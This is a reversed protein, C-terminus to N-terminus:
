TIVLVAHHGVTTIDVELAQRGLRWRMGQADIAQVAKPRAAFVRLPITVKVPGVQPNVSGGSAALGTYLNVLSLVHTAGADRRGFVVQIGPPASVQVALGPGYKRVVYAMLRKLWPDERASIQQGIPASIYIVSGKGVRNITVLPKGTFTKFHIYATEGDTFREKTRHDEPYVLEALPRATTCQVELVESLFLIPYEPAGDRLEESLWGYNVEKFPSVGTFRVGLLDSWAFNDQRKGASDRLSTEHTVILLGGASVFGRLAEGLLPSPAVADGVLLTHYKSPNLRSTDVVDFHIGSDLLANHLGSAEEQVRLGRRGPLPLLSLESVPDYVVAVDPVSELGALWAERERVARFTPELNRFEGPYFSGDPLPNIGASIRGGHATAIAASVQMYSSPILNWASWTGQATGPQLRMFGGYSHVQYPKGMAWMSKATFSISRHPKAETSHLGIRDQIDRPTGDLLDRMGAGNYGIVMAPDISLLLDVADRLMEIRARNGFRNVRMRVAPDDSALPPEEGFAKRYAARCHPCFCAQGPDFSGVGYANPAGLIDFWFGEPRIAEAVQRLEALVQDRWPSRLCMWNYAGFAIKEKGAPDVCRWEPRQRAMWNDLGVNYYAIFPMGARRALERTQTTWDGRCPRGKFPFAADGMPNKTKLEIIEVGAQKCDHIFAQANWKKGADRSWEPMDVMTHVAILKRGLEVSAKTLSPQAALHPAIGAAAGGWLFERRKM